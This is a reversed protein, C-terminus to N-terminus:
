AAAGLMNEIFIGYGKTPDNVLVHTVAGVLKGDQIIPSGSMGPVIGGTKQLLKEDTVRIKMSRGDKANHNVKEIMIDYKKPTDGQVCTLIEANGPKVEKEPVIEIVNKVDYLTADTLTGFIGCTTNNELQGIERSFEYRGILEGPTGPEGAVIGIVNAPVISGTHLPLLAGSDIDSIPHGLAGFANTKPDVYTMTGIGAMSDRVLIGIQYTGNTKSQVPQVTVSIATNERLGKLKIPKGDCNKVVNALEESSSVVNGNATQLIDGAQLGAQKGPCIKGAPSDIETMASIVVGDATMRVGVPVGLPILERSAAFATCPTLVCVLLFCSIWKNKLKNKWM